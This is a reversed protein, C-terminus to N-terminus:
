INIIPVEIRVQPRIQTLIGQYQRFVRNYLDKINPIKIGIIFSYPIPIISNVPLGASRSHYYVDFFPEHLSSARFRQTHKLCTEWKCGEERLESESMTYLNKGSFFSKPTPQISFKETKKDYRYRQSDPRFTVEVGGKTYCSPYEPDISPAILMTATLYTWGKFQLDPMPVPIRLHQKIPLHGQFIILTEDDECTILRLPDNEFRGWGIHERSSIEHPEAKHILLARISLPKLAEGLQAKVSVAARLAYPASFSTGKVGDIRMNRNLVGFPLSDSGGFIVGDPKILGPHRGPGICSYDAKNWNSEESDSAGVCILNVGDSPPQVRNLGFMTEAQGDNGAAVTAVMSGGALREDLSATWASIDDDQMPIKPGLSLNVFKYKGKNNDLHDTIRKLVDNVATEGNSSNKDLVRIHDVHCIPRPLTKTESMPGFLFATTVALGHNEGRNTPEEINEPEYLTVWKDLTPIISEPIGGDFIAIFLNPDYSEDNPFVPQFSTTRLLSDIPRLTPMRRVARVFSFEGISNINASHMRVPIFTLGGVDIRKELLPEANLTSLYKIFSDVISKKRDNHIVVELLLNKEDEKISKIKMTPIFAAVKEIHVLDDAEKSYESWSLLRRSLDSFTERKGAVFLDQTIGEDSPPKEIGWNDPKIKSEKSGITRLKIEALLDSPFDSKSIYRPHM